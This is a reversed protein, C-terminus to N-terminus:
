ACSIRSYYVRVSVLVVCACLYLFSARACICSRRVRVFVLVVCACLYVFSERLNERLCRQDWGQFAAFARARLRRFLRTKDEWGAPASKAPRLADGRAGPELPECPFGWQLDEVLQGVDPRRPVNAAIDAIEDATMDYSRTRSFLFGSSSNRELPAPKDEHHQKSHLNVGEQNQGDKDGSARAAISFFDRLQDEDGEESSVNEDSSYEQARDNEQSTSGRSRLLLKSGPDAERIALVDAENAQSDKSERPSDDSLPFSHVHRTTPRTPAFSLASKTTEATSTRAFKGNTSPRSAISGAGTVPRDVRKLPEPLDDDEGPERGM